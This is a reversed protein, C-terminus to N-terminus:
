NTKKKDQGIIRRGTGKWSGAKTTASSGEIIKAQKWDVGQGAYTPMNSGNNYCTAPTTHLIAYNSYIVDDYLLRIVDYAM